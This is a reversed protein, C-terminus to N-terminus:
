PERGVRSEIRAIEKTLAEDFEIRQEQVKRSIGLNVAHIAHFNWTDRVLSRDACAAELPASLQMMFLEPMSPDGDVQAVSVVPSREFSMAPDITESNRRLWEYSSVFENHYQNLARRFDASMVEQFVPNSSVAEYAVFAQNPRISRYSMKIVQNVTDELGTGTECLVLGELARELVPMRSEIRQINEDLLARNAASEEIFAELTTRYLRETARRDAWDNVRLGILIGAVVIAVEIAVSFWNQARIAEGLRRLIM